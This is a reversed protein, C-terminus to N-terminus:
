WPQFSWMLGLIVSSSICLKSQKSLRLSRLMDRKMSSLTVARLAKFRWCVTINKLYVTLGTVSIMIESEGDWDSNCFVNPNWNKVKLKPRINFRFNEKDLVFNIIRLMELYTGMTAVDICKYLERV